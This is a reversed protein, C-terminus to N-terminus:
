PAIDDNTITCTISEGESLTVNGPITGPCSIGTISVFQYGTRGDENISHPSNASVPYSTNNQVLNGDVRLGFQSPGATGGNNNIVSKVLTILAPQDDNTINCVKNEDPGLVLQGGSDCDDSLDPFSAVYGSIGTETVTYNGATVVTPLGSTVPINTTGNDVFLQFDGVGNNGGNDNVVTKNVTITALRPEEENCVFTDNHRTQIARFAVDLTAGDTQTLNNLTRGDCNVGSELTPNIGGNDPVPDLTLNGFCWAKAIYVTEEAPIPGPTGWVNHTADALAVSFPTNALNYLTQVGKSIENEGVEYVNDGDDAWWFFQVNQALEGDWTNNIDELADPAHLEPETSSRDDNSTLVVDMCAWADNTGIHLSITDESEDDPKLDTFDFFLRGNDLDDLEWSTTCPTGPVPYPTNGQWVYNPESTGIDVCANGNYYSENDVKLDIAGAAFTNGISREIDGFFAGTMGSAIVAGAGVITLLGFIIRKM